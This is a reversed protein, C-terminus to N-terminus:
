GRIGTLSQLTEKFEEAEKSGPETIADLRFFKDTTPSERKAMNVDLSPVGVITWCEVYGRQKAKQHSKEAEGIRNHINSIDADGKIEVAVINRHRGSALVERICIDPDNAFEVHVTRGAANRVEITRETSNLVAPSLISKVLEFVARTARAGFVNLAGGRLQPGLTILTLAHVMEKSLCVLGELLMEASRCLATCLGPLAKESAPSVRGSVEM